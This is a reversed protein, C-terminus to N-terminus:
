KKRKKRSPTNKVLWFLILGLAVICIGIVTAWVWGATKCGTEKRTECEAFPVSSKWNLFGCDEINSEYPEQYAKCSVKCDEPCTDVNETKDCVEDGCRDIKCDKPCIASNENAQCTGDGCYEEPDGDFISPKYIEFSKTKIDCKEEGFQDLSCVEAKLVGDSEKNSAQVIFYFTKSNKLLINDSSPNIGLDDSSLKIAVDGDDGNNSIRISGSSSQGTQLKSPLNIKDIEPDAVTPPIYVVSDFYDADATITFVPRGINIDGIIEKSSIQPSTEFSSTFQTNPRVEAFLYGILGTISAGFSGLKSELDSKQVIKPINDEYIVAVNEYNPCDKNTGLLGQTQITASGKGDRDKLTVQEQIAGRLIEEAGSSDTVKVNAIREPNSLIFYNYNFFLVKKSTSILTYKCSSQQKKLNITMSNQPQIISGDQLEADELNNVNYRFSFGEDVNGAVGTALWYAEGNVVNVQTTSFITQQLQGVGVFGIGVVLLIALIGLKPKTIETQIAQSLIFFFGIFIAVGILTLRLAGSSFFVVISVIGMILILLAIAFGTTLAFGKKNM